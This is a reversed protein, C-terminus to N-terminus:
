EKVFKKNNVFYMGSPLHSVDIEKRGIAKENFLVEGLLNTLTIFKETQTELIIFGNAPNPYINLFYDISNEEIKTIQSFEAVLNRNSSISFTYSTDSSVNNGNESWHSFLYGTNTSTSVTVASGSTYTGSGTTTGGNVPNASTTVTFPLVDSLLRKWVYGTTGAFIYGNNVALSFVTLNTLGNNIAAWTSGGDISLYVGGGSSSSAFINSGVVLFSSIAGTVNTATWTSGNNSSVYLGSNTGALYKSKFFSVASIQSPLGSNNITNWNVGGNVTLYMGNSITGALITDGKVALSAVLANWSNIKNWNLGNNGSKYVGFAGAYINGNDVALCRVDYAGLGNNTNTWNTGNNSSQYFGGGGAGVYIDSGKTALSYYPGTTTGSVIAWNGGDNSTISVATSTVGFLNSGNPIIATVNPQTPGSTVQWQASLQQFAVLCISTAILMIKNKM